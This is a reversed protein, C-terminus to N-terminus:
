ANTQDSPDDAKRRMNSRAWTLLEPPLKSPWTHLLIRNTCRDKGGPCGLGSFHRLCPEKGEANRPILDKIEAPMNGPRKLPADRPKLERQRPEAQLTNVLAMGWEPNTFEIQRLSECYHLWWQESESQLHGMSRGLFRDVYQRTLRVRSPRCSPDASKNKSVFARLRSLLKRVHDFWMENAFASLGHIADLLADYSPCPPSPPLGNGSKFDVSFNSNSSGLELASADDVEKFM